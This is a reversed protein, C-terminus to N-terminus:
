VLLDPDNKEDEELEWRVFRRIFVNEGVKATVQSLLQAITLQGDRIYAQRLLVKEDKFKKLQGEIIRLILAEPKGESRAWVAAKHSLEALVEAPIDEDRVYDPAAAAIQLALEHTFNKLADSRAAFDTETNTEVMVGIRGNSHSYLEIRGQSTRHDAHRAAEAEIQEQLITLAQEYNGTAQELAMRCAHVGAKTEERLKKILEITTAM